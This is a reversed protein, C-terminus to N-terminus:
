RFAFWFSYYCLVECSDSHGNNDFAWLYCIYTLIHLFPFVVVNNSPINIPAAVISVFIFTGKFFLFISSSYQKPIGSRPICEFFIFVLKFSIYVEFNMTANNVIGLTFFYDLHIFPYFHIISFPYHIFFIHYIM